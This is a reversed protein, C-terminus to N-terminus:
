YGPWTQRLDTLDQTIWDPATLRPVKKGTIFDLLQDRQSMADNYGLEILERTYAKEFLLFSLLRNENHNRGGIGRLLARLPLPMERRHKYAIARLDKSPVIIMTDIPRM